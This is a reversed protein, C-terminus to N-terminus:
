MFQELFRKDNNFFLRIDDIAYKLMSLREIGMGFAFGSYVDPDIGVNKLVNTDVMGAGLVELWGTGSCTRCGKGECMICQVDIEVSPETFPFFSSRFRTPRASGFYLRIFENLVGKLDCFTINKDVYLGEIQHFFNNKRANVTENRYVRGPAIVRIPPTMSEMTRIQANSTQSRLVTYPALKTYFTDQVDRAPHNKPVNLMDFNFYETEVEPANESPVLSFGLNQFIKVIENTTSTIPHVKGRPSFQGPLTIDIKEKELKADLEKRYFESYKSKIATELKQTIENALSGVVRKEENSLDKLGKKIANFEGKRSLYKLRIEDLDSSSTAKEIDASALAYINNLKEQM